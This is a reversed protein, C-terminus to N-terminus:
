LYHTGYAMGFTHDTRRRLTACQGVVENSSRCLCWTPCSSISKFAIRSSVSISIIYVQQVKQKGIVQATLEVLRSFAVYKSCIYAYVDSQYILSTLHSRHWQCFAGRHSHIFCILTHIQTRWTSLLTPRWCLYGIAALLGGWYVASYRIQNM